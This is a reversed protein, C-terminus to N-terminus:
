IGQLNIGLETIMKLVCQLRELDHASFLRHGSEAKFPLVLGEQEYLRVTQVAVGLKKAVIGISLVPEYKEVSNM